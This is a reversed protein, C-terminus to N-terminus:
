GLGDDLPYGNTYYGLKISDKPEIVKITRRKFAESTSFIVDEIKNESNNSITFAIGKDSFDSCWNLIVFVILLLLNKM